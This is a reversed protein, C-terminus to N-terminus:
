RIDTTVAGVDGDEAIVELRMIPQLLQVDADRLARRIADGVVFAAL